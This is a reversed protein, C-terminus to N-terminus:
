IINLKLLHFINLNKLFFQRKSLLFYAPYYVFQGEQLNINEIRVSDNGNPHILNVSGSLLILIEEENHAHPAHPSFGSGHVSVHCSVELLGATIDKFLPLFKHKENKSLILPIKLNYVSGALKKGFM